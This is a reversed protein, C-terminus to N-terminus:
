YLAELPSCYMQYCQGRIVTYLLLFLRSYTSRDKRVILYFTSGLFEILRIYKECTTNM